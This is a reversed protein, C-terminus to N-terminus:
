NDGCVETHVSDSECAEKEAAGSDKGVANGEDM